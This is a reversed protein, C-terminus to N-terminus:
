EALACTRFGAFIDNRDPAFFNRYRLHKMRPQTAFSGGRLTRRSRFWPASYDRYPHAVFGPYPEFASSTWEWAQGWEFQAGLTEAALEWEAESPLRRGAWACYAQAEYATLNMAPLRDDIDIWQGFTLRQWRSGASRVYRPAQLAESRLWRWGEDGWFERRGYGGAAVFELYRGWTVPASDIGYGGLEVEHPGLENDFMFGSKPTGLWHRAAPMDINHAAARAHPQWGQLPIGLHQAMYIAAEHHMDEHFLCLRFFYLDQDRSPTDRLLALSEDLGQALDDRLEAPAPLPLEWRTTHAVRGSDFMSDANARRPSRRQVDPDAATGLRRQPNRGLWWEQFWGVHGLEWRPPNLQTSFPVAGDSAALAREYVAFTALTHRRADTLAAALDSAGANRAFTAADPGTSEM